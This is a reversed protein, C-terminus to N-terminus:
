ERLLGDVVKRLAPLDVTLTQWITQDNIVDYGHVLVHRTAISQRIDPIKAAWEPAERELRRLAEGILILQREVVNRLIADNAYEEVTRGATFGLLFDIADRVTHLSARPDRRM